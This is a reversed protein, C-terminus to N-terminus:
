RKMLKFGINPGMGQVHALMIWVMAMPELYRAVILPGADCPDFGLDIILKRAIAKAEDDDGCYFMTVAESGFRPDAMIQYGTNNFAKVVKADKAWGAVQEGGSSTTGVTLGRLDPGIPNTCDILVKGTLKGAAIIAGRTAEWPTALIVVPARSVAEPVSLAQANGGSLALVDKIQQGQHNRVGFYVKHGAQALRSGLTGGVHGAGIVAINM